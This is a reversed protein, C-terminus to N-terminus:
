MCEKLFWKSSQAVSASERSRIRTFINDTLGIMASEAPVFSGIHALFTILGVQKLYVSKGSNNPGSILQITGERNYCLSTDNSIFTSNSCLEQLPNRGNSIYLGNEENTLQPRKYNLDVASISFSLLSNSILPLPIM